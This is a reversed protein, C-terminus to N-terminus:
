GSAPKAPELKAKKKDSEQTTAPRTPTSPRKTPQNSQPLHNYHINCDCWKIGCPCLWRTGGWSHHCSPCWVARSPRTVSFLPQTAARRHGQPCM